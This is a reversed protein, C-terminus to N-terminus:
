EGNGAGKEKEVIKFDLLNIPEGFRLEVDAIDVNNFYRYCTKRTGENLKVCIENNLNDFQFMNSYSAVHNGHAVSSARQVDLTIEDGPKALDIIKVIEKAYFDEWVAAGERENQLFVYMGMLFLVLLILYIVNNWIISDEGKKNM